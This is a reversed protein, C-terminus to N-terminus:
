GIITGSYKGDLANELDPISDSFIVKIRKKKALALAKPDFPVNKGPVWEKGFQKEFDSYSIREIRVADKNLRPDKDYVYLINSFNIVTSSKHRSAISTAVFDTSHGPVTGSHVSVNKIGRFMSKVLFANMKTALIGLRDLTVNSSREDKRSDKTISREFINRLSNQYTRALFGGGCVIAIKEKPSSSIKRLIAKRLELLFDVDIDKPIIRSGGLSIVIM